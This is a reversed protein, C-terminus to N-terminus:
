HSTIKEPVVAVKSLMINHCLKNAYKIALEKKLHKKKSPKNWFLPQRNHDSRKIVLRKKLILVIQIMKKETWLFLFFYM